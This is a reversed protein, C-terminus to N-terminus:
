HFFDTIPVQKKPRISIGEITTIIDDMRHQLDNNENYAALLHVKDLLSLTEKTTIVSSSINEQSDDEDEDELDSNATEMNTVEEICESRFKERRNIKNVNVEEYTTLTNDVEVYEDISCNESIENFLMEFEEDSDQVMAAYDDTLFGCKEFCHKITDSTGERWASKVWDIVKLINIKNIIDSARKNGDVRSIVYRILFKRCKLKFVRIIITDLPQLRSTRNKPLFVLKINSLNKKISEQHSTANDLFLVVNRDQMKMKRDLRELMDSMIERNM